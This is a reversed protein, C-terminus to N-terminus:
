EEDGFLALDRLRRVEDEGLAGVAIDWYIQALKLVFSLQKDTMTHATAKPWPGRPPAPGGGQKSAARAMTRAEVLVSAPADKQMFAAAMVNTFRLIQSTSLSGRSLKRGTLSAALFIVLGNPSATLAAAKLGLFNLRSSL